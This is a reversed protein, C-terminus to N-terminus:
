ILINLIRIRIILKYIHSYNFYTLSEIKKKPIKLLDIQHILNKLELIQILYM